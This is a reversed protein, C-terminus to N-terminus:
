LRVSLEPPVPHLPQNLQGLIPGAIAEVRVMVCVCSRFRGGPAPFGGQGPFGGTRGDRPFEGPGDEENGGPPGTLSGPAFITTPTLVGDGDSAANSM